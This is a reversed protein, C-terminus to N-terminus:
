PLIQNKVFLSAFPLLFLSLLFNDSELARPMLSFPFTPQNLADGRACRSGVVLPTHTPPYCCIYNPGRIRSIPISKRLPIMLRVLTKRHHPFVYM